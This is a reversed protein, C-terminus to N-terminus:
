AIPKGPCGDQDNVFTDTDRCPDAPRPKEGSKPKDAERESAQAGVIAAVTAASIGLTRLVSRRTVTRRTSIDDDTLSRRAM